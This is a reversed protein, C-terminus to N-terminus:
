AVIAYGTDEGFIAELPAVYLRLTVAALIFAFSRTMWERHAQIERARIKLYAMASSSLVGIGLLAFAVGSVAGSASYQSM